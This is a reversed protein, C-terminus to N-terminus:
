LAFALAFFAWAGLVWALTEIVDRPRLSELADMLEFM